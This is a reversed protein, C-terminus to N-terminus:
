NPSWGDLVTAKDRMSAAQQTSIQTSGAIRASTNLLNGDADKSRYEWFRLSSTPSGGTITWGSSSIHPGVTTIITRRRDAGHLTVNSKGTVYVIEHYLM